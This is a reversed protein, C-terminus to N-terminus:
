VVIVPLCDRPPLHIAQCMANLVGLEDPLRETNSYRSFIRVQDLAQYLLMELGSVVAGGREQWATALASPWPNYAVDLLVAGHALATLFDAWDDAAHAPLTSIVASYHETAAPFDVLHYEQVSMDLRDAVAHLTALKHLSRAYVDVSRYGLYHLAVLASIATAGAGIIAVKQVTGGSSDGSKPIAKCFASDGQIILGGHLLANVIGGVDTNHGHVRSLKTSVTDQGSHEQWYVTNVAGTLEALDSVSDCYQIVATKLPMTVSLGRLCQGTKAEAFIAALGDTTTDRRDYSLSEGLYKYAARHLNPSLSHDIPHGLVYAYCDTSVKQAQHM